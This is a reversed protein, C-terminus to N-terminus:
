PTARWARCDARKEKGLQIGPNLFFPHEIYAIHVVDQNERRCAPLQAPRHLCEVFVEHSQLQLFMRGLGKDPPNLFAKIKKAVM